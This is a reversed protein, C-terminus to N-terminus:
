NGSIVLDNGDRFIEGGLSKAIQQADKTLEEYGAFAKGMRLAHIIYGVGGVALLILLALVVPHMSAM